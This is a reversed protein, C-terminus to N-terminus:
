LIGTRDAAVAATASGGWCELTLSAVPSRVIRIIIVMVAAAAAVSAMLRNENPCFFRRRQRMMM